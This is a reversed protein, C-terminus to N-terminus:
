DSLRYQEVNEVPQQSVIDIDRDSSSRVEVLTPSSRKERHSELMAVLFPMM